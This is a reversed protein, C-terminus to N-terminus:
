KRSNIADIRFKEAADADQESTAPSQLGAGINRRKDAEEKKVRTETSAVLEAEKEAFKTRWYCLEALIDPNAIVVGDEIKYQPPIEGAIKLFTAKQKESLEGSKILDEVRNDFSNNFEKEVQAIKATLNKDANVQKNIDFDIEGRKKKQEGRLATRFSEFEDERLVESMEAYAERRKEIAESSLNRSEQVRKLKLELLDNQTLSDVNLPAVEQLAEFVTKGEEKAKLVFKVDETELMARLSSIETDREAIIAKYDIKEEKNEAPATSFPHTNPVVNEQIEPNKSGEAGEIKNNELSENEVVPTEDAENSEPQEGKIPDNVEEAM